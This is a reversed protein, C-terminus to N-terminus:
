LSAGNQLFVLPSLFHFHKKSPFSGMIENFSLLSMKFVFGNSGVPVAPRVGESLRTFHIYIILLITGRQRWASSNHIIWRVWKGPPRTLSTQGPDYAVGLCTQRHWGHTGHFILSRLWVSRCNMPTAGASAPTWLFFDPGCPDRGVYVDDPEL